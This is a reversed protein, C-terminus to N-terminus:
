RVETEDQHEHDFILAIGKQFYAMSELINASNAKELAKGYELLAEEYSCDNQCMYMGIAYKDFDTFTIDWRSKDDHSWNGEESVGKLHTRMSVKKKADKHLQQDFHFKDLHLRDFTVAEQSTTKKVKISM